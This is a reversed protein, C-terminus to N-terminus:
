MWEMGDCSVAEVLPVSNVCPFKRMLAHAAPDLPVDHSLSRSSMGLHGWKNSLVDPSPSTFIALFSDHISNAGVFLDHGSNIGGGPRSDKQHQWEFNKSQRWCIITGTQYDALYESPSVFYTECVIGQRALKEGPRVGIRWPHFLADGWLFMYHRWLSHPVPSCFSIGVRQSWALVERLLMRKESMTAWRQRM